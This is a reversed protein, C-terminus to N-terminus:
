TSKRKKNRRGSTRETRTRRAPPSPPFSTSHDTRARELRSYVLDIEKKPTAIGTKSKKQFVHLVYVVEDFRAAYVCRYTDDDFRETLKMVENATSLEFPSANPPTEGKQVMWLAHGFDHRVDGPLDRMDDLSGAIWRLEKITAM